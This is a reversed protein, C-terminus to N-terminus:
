KTCASVTNDVV